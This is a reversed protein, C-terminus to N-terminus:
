PRSEERQRVHFSAVLRQFDPIVDPIQDPLCTCALEVVLRERPANGLPMALHVQSQVLEDDKTRLRLVQAVGPARGGGIDQKDVISVSYSEALGRVSERAAAAIDIDDDRRTIGITMNPRFGPKMSDKVLAFALGDQGPAVATWGDPVDFGVPVGIRTMM